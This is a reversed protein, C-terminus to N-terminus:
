YRYRCRAVAAKKTTSELLLFHRFGFALDGLLIFFYGVRLAFYL